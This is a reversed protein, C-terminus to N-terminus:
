TLYFLVFGLPEKALAREGIGGCILSRGPRGARTNPRWLKRNQQPQAIHRAIRPCLTQRDARALLSTVFRDVLAKARTSL